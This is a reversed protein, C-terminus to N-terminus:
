RDDVPSHSRKKPNSNGDPLDATVGIQKDRAKKAAGAVEKASYVRGPKPQVGTRLNADPLNSKAVSPRNPNLPQMKPPIYEGAGGEEPSGTDPPFCDLRRTADQHVSKSKM